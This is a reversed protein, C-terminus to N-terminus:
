EKDDNAFLNQTNFSFRFVIIGHKDDLKLNVESDIVGVIETDIIVVNKCATHTPIMPQIPVTTSFCTRKM